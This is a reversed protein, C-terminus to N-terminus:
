FEELVMSFRGKQALDQGPAKQFCNEAMQPGTARCNFDGKPVMPFNSKQVLDQGPAKQICSEAM